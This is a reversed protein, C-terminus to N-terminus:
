PKEASPSKASDAPAEIAENIRYLIKEQLGEEINKIMADTTLSGQLYLNLEPNFIDSELTGYLPLPPVRRALRLQEMFRVMFPFRSMDLDKWASMRVPIQGLESAWKRQIKESTFFELIDYALEPNKCSRLIVGAQGGINSSSYALAGQAAGAPPAIPKLGLKQVEEESPAPILSIEFDLGSSAFKEVMWPGTLAMAYKGNIFGTDPALASRKWGGGEVGSKAVRQLAELAARGNPTNLAPQARGNKDYKVFDAGYMNFVPFHFWLSGYMAYGYVGANTDTLVKGYAILEDWTRPARGPDLGAASLERAKARFLAKNWFLAVCTAQVPLSYLRVEGLRNVVGSDFCAEVFEKRAAEVSPYKFNKLNDIPTLARGFALDTVKIADVFALDPTIRALAATKLKTVMDDYSVREVRITLKKGTKALYDKEYDRMLKNFVTVEENKFGQWIQITEGEGSKAADKRCAPFIAIIALILIYQYLKRKIM